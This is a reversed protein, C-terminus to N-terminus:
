KWECQRSAACNLPGTRAQSFMGTRNQQEIASGRAVSPWPSAAWVGPTASGDANGRIILNPLISITNPLLSGSRTRILFTLIYLIYWDCFLRWIKVHISGWPRRRRSSTRAPCARLSAGVGTRRLQLQLQLHMSRLRDTWMFVESFDV